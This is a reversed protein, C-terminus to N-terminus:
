SLPKFTKRTVGISASSYSRDSTWYGNGDSPLTGDTRRFPLVNEIRTREDFQLIEWKFSFTLFNYFLAGATDISSDLKGARDDTSITGDDKVTYQWCVVRKGDRKFGFEYEKVYGGNLLEALEDKYEQIRSETPRGYYLRCLDLDAAIKSSVYRANIITYTSSSTFTTTM